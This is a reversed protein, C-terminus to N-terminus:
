SSGTSRRSRPRGSSPTSTSTSASRHRSRSTLHPLPYDRLDILEFEADDRRSALDFVRQRSSATRNAPHQRPHHRDTM